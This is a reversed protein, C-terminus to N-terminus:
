RAADRARGKATDEPACDNQSESEKKHNEREIKAESGVPAHGGDRRQGSQPNRAGQESIESHLQDRRNVPEQARRTKERSPQPGARIVASRSARRRLGRTRGYIERPPSKYLRDRGHGAGDGEGGSRVAEGELTQMVLNVAHVQRHAAQRGGEVTQADRLQAVDVDTAVHGRRLDTAGDAHGVPERGSRVTTVPSKRVAGPSGSSAQM